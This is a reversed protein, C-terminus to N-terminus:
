PGIISYSTNILQRRLMHGYTGHLVSAMLVADARQSTVESLSKAGYPAPYPTRVLAHRATGNRGKSNGQQVELTSSEVQQYHSRSQDSTGVNDRNSSKMLELM